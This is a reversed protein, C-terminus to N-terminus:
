YASKLDLARGVVKAKSWAKHVPGDWTVGESDLFHIWGTAIASVMIKAVGIVEDLGTHDLKEM